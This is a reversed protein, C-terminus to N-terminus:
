EIKRLFDSISTPSSIKRSILFSLKLGRFIDIIIRVRRPVNVLDKKTRGINM